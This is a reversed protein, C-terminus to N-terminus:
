FENDIYFRLDDRVESLEIKLDEITKELRGNEDELNSVEIDLDSIEGNLEDITENAERLDADTASEEYHYDLIQRSIDEHIIGYRIKEGLTMNDILTQHFM